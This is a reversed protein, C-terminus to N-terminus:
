SNEDKRKVLTKVPEGTQYYKKTRRWNLQYLSLDLPDGPCFLNKDAPQRRTDATLINGPKDFVAPIM